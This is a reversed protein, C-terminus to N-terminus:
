RSMAVNNWDGESDAVQKESNLFSHFPLCHIIFSPGKVPM